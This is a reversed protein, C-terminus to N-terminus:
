RGRRTLVLTWDLTETGGSTKKTLGGHVVIKKVRRNFLKATSVKAVGNGRTYDAGFWHADEPSPCEFPDSPNSTSYGNSFGYSFAPRGAVGFVGLKYRKTKTGCDPRLFQGGSPTCGKVETPGVLDSAREMTASVPIPLGGATIRKEGYTKSVGILSSRVSRFSTRESYRGTLPGLPVREGAEADYRFCDTSTVTGEDVYTGSITANFNASRLTGASAQPAVVALVALTALLAKALM